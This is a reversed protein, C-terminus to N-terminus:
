KRLRTNSGPKPAILFKISKIVSTESATLTLQDIFPTAGPTQADITITTDDAQTALAFPSLFIFVAAIVLSFPKNM